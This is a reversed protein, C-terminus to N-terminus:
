DYYITADEEEGEEKIVYAGDEGGGNINVILYLIALLNQAHLYELRKKLYQYKM